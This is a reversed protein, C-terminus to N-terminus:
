ILKFTFRISYHQNYPKEIGSFSIKKLQEKVCQAIDTNDSSISRIIIQDDDGIKFVVDVYGTCCNKLAKEPYQINKCLVDQINKAPAAKLPETAYTTIGALLIMAFVVGLTKTLMNTKM